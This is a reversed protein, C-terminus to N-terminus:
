TSRLFSCGAEQARLTAFVGSPQLIGGPVVGAKFEDRVTAVDLKLRNATRSAYNNLALNCVLVIAGRGQLVEITTPAFTKTSGAVARLFPNRVAWADTEPDKVKAQEGIGYKAWLADNLAMPLGAHRLVMVALLDADPTNYMEKYGRMFVWANTFIVGDAIDPADFVAKHKAAAVRELWKVDFPPAAPAGNSGAAGAPTTASAQSSAAGSSACAATGAVTLAATALTGLFERRPQSPDSSPPRSV